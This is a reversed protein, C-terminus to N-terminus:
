GPYFPIAGAPQDHVVPQWVESIDTSSWIGASDVALVPRSQAAAVETIASTLNSLNYPQITRGDVEVAALPVGPENAAVVLLDQRQWDVRVAQNLNMAQLPRVQKISVSGQDVVVAGVLLHGGAVVAVRVGDRSLRLDTIPGYPALATADVSTAVWVNQSNPVVRIVTGDAVTWVARSPDGATDAPIWTPRTFSKATLDKVPDASNGIKGSSVRLEQTGDPNETVMALESGDASQSATVVDYLGNGGPGPIPNGDALSLIRGHSVVLGSPTGPASYPEYSPLDAVRWDLHGPVLAVGESQVVINSGYSGLSKVIQAVILQKTNSALDPMAKLNVIITGDASETVNTKLSAGSPFATSVADVLGSSPGDLLLEMIRGPIGTSPEAAVYRPDPVLMTLLPDFFYVFVQHYYKTFASNTILLTDPPNVIRWQGDTSRKVKITWQTDSPENAGLPQFSGDPNLTGLQQVHLVVSETSTGADDSGITSFIDNVVIIPTPPASAPNWTSQAASTLYARADAHYNAPNGSNDIFGRVIALPGSGKPPQPAAQTDGSGGSGQLDAPLPGTEDPITACGALLFVLVALVPAFVRTRRSRRTV